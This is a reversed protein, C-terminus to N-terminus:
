CAQMGAVSLPVKHGVGPVERVLKPVLYGPLRNLLGQYLAEIEEADVEFHAAGAVRDLVNLYYPDIGAQFLAESLAVQADVTDNIGKLIVAQNLVSRCVRRLPSVAASLAADIEQAHNIHLVVVVPVPLAEILQCLADTVRDPIVVPLRTHIRVRQVSSVATLQQLASALATDDAMLPDGGSLIVENVEPHQHLYDIVRALDRTKLTGEDYPYHRRFCYRCNVACGGRFVLLVRSGYKHLVGPLVGEHELLPDAVFEPRPEWELRNAMVQALLPDQPDGQRMRAVFSQPVRVPFAPSSDRESVWDPDISLASLLAETSTYADKLQQQWSTM